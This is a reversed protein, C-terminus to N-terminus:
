WKAAAPTGALVEHIRARTGATTDEPLAEISFFGHAVIEHNPVPQTPQRFERVVYITVHDRRSYYPHFFVGHPAPPATLEINGEELLERELAELLTEGVEVGGGPLHWGDAYSHKILFVRGDRDLVVGRVGLTLGRSFRWYLHLLRNLLGSRRLRALMIKRNAM